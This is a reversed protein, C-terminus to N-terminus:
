EDGKSINYKKRVQEPTQNTAKAFEEVTMLNYELFCRCNCDHGAVGSQSPAKAKAGGSLSFYEGAKVTVGEMIQHNEARSNRKTIWGKKTKYRYEPRVREDGQNRWTAAYIYGSGEVGKQIREACDMFGSETNRHSETRAINKAKSYSVGLRESINKAMKEYRDGNMLGITMVQQIQYIVEQRHKEMVPSLTLKSINNNVAQELVQPNVAIDNVLAESVIKKGNVEVFADSMGEYCKRYTDDVLGMIQAKVRPSISDVHEAIEQLFAARARQADLYSFYIRGDADAYKIYQEALFSKVEKDLERYIAKIKKDTLKVRNEEIRRIDYLLEALSTESKPM